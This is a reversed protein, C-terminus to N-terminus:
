HSVTLRNIYTKEPTILEVVYLGNSLRDTSLQVRNDGENLTISRKVMLLVM